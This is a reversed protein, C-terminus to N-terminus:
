QCRPRTGPATHWRPACDSATHETGPEGAPHRPPDVEHKGATPGCGHARGFRRCPRAHGLSVSRDAAIPPGWAIDGPLRLIQRASRIGRDVEAKFVDPTVAMQALAGCARGLELQREVGPGIRSAIEGFLTVATAHDGLAAYAFAANVADWVKGTFATLWDYHLRDDAPQSLWAKAATRASRALANAADTASADDGSFVVFQGHGDIPQRSSYEFVRYDRAIWLHQLGVNLYSGVSYGSPQFEINILCWGRDATWFRPSRSMQKVGIPTLYGRGADRMLRNARRKVDASGLESGVRYMM